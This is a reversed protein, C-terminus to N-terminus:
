GARPCRSEGPLSETGSRDSSMRGSCCLLLLSFQNHLRHALRHGLTHRFLAQMPIQSQSLCRRSSFLEKQCEQGHWHRQQAQLDLHSLLLTSYTCTTVGPYTRTTFPSPMGLDLCGPCFPSRRMTNSTWTHEQRSIGLSEIVHASLSLIHSLKRPRHLLQHLVVREVQLSPQMALYTHTVAAACGALGPREKDDRTYIDDAKTEKHTSTSVSGRSMYETEKRKEGELATCQRSLACPLPLCVYSYPTIKLNCRHLRMSYAIAQHPLITVAQVQGVM